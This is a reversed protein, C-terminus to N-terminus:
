RTREELDRALDALREIETEDVLTESALTVPPRSPEAPPTSADPSADGGKRTSVPSAEGEQSAQSPYADRGDYPPRSAERLRYYTADVRKGIEDGLVHEFREDALAVKLADPGAGVGGDDKTKRLATITTWEGDAMHEALEGPLDREVPVDDGVYAFTQAEPDFALISAPRPARAWRAKPFGVRARNGDLKKLLLILDAHPQWAGALRELDTEGPESRSRPHHLLLFAVKAGLGAVVLWEVFERTEEPTGNGRMGFRTLSDAVVVDVEHRYSLALLHACVDFDSARIQGWRSPEDWIRVGDHPHPWTSLRRELKERFAERPGENEVILWRVPRPFTLGCFPLGAASHLALDIAFTTKGDDSKGALIALGAAPLMTGHESAILPDAQTEDVRAVFEAVTVSPDDDGDGSSPTGEGRPLEDQHFPNEEDSYTSGLVGAFRTLEDPDM